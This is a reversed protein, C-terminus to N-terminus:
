IDKRPLVFVLTLLCWCTPELHEKFEQIQSSTYRWALHRPAYRIDAAGQQAVPEGNTTTRGGVDVIETQDIDLKAGLRLAIFAFSPAM